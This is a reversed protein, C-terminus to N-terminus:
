HPNAKLEKTARLKPRPSVRSARSGELRVPAGFRVAVLSENLGECRAAAVMMVEKGGGSQLSSKREEDLGHTCSHAEHNVTHVRNGALAGWVEVM